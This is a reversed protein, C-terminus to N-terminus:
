FNKITFVVRLDSFDVPSFITAQQFLKDPSQEVTGIKGVLLGRPFEKGLGSTIVKDGEKVVDAQSIMDLILSLGFTGRVIGRAGSEIVEANVASGQDTILSIRSTNPFVESVKGILVSDSVIVPMNESIGSDKGKDILFRNGQSEPDQAIIFSAELDYKGRPALNVERRLIENEKEADELRVNEALLEQNQKTLEENERKLDGISGLFDFFGAVGGSFIRFTKFFPSTIVLMFGKVPNDAGRSSIFIVAVLLAVTFIFKWTKKLFSIKV